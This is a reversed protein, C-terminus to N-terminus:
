HQRFLGRLLFVVGITILVIAWIVGSPLLTGLGLAILIFALILSGTIPQRYAPVVLRILVQLLVIVGVGLLILHWTEFPLVSLLGLTDMLFVLGAWILVLAWGIANLPDRRFKEDWNKEEKEELKEAKEDEKEVKEAKESWQRTDWDSPPPPPEPQPPPQDSM